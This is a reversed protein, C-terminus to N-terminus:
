RAENIVEFFDGYPYWFMSGPSEKVRWTDLNNPDDSPYARRPMFAGVMSWMILAEERWPQIELVLGLTKERMGAANFCVLDGPKM